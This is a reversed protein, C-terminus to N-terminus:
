EVPPEAGAEHEGESEADEGVFEFAVALEEARRGGRM